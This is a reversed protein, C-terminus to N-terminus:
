CDNGSITMQCRQVISSHVEYHSYTIKAVNFFVSQNFQLTYHSVSTVTHLLIEYLDGSADNLHQGLASLFELTSSDMAGLIEM